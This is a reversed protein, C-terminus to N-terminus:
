ICRLRFVATAPSGKPKSFSVVDLNCERRDSFTNDLFFPAHLWKLDFRTGVECKANKGNLVCEICSEMRCTRGTRQFTFILHKDTLDIAQRERIQFVGEKVQYFKGEEIPIISQAYSKDQLVFAACFVLSSIAM